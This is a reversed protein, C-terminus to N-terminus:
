MEVDQVFHRCAAKNLWNGCGFEVAPSTLEDSMPAGRVHAIVISILVQGHMFM